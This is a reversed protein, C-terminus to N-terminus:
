NLKPNKPHYLWGRYRSGMSRVCQHWMRDGGQSLLTAIDPIDTVAWVHNRLEEDLQARCWGSYGVFFRIHGDIECGSNVYDLMAQFNGGTFLGPAFERSDPILEGLTHIFYLRDCSMPGGCWVPIKERRSVGEVLGQLTYATPLNMVIGMSTSAPAYEVLCVVSHQFHEDRLFPEAILLRGPAPMGCNIRINFLTNDFDIM